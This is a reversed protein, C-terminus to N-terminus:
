TGAGRLCLSCVPGIWIAPTWWPYPLSTYHQVLYMVLATMLHQHSLDLHPQPVTKPDEKLAMALHYLSPDHILPRPIFELGHGPIMEAAVQHVFVENISFV